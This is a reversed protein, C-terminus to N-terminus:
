DQNSLTLHKSNDSKEELTATIQKPENSSKLMKTNTSEIVIDPINCIILPLYKDVKEVTTICSGILGVFVLFEKVRDKFKQYQESNELNKSLVKGIAENCTKELHCEGRIDLNILANEIKRLEGILDLKIDNPLESAQFKDILDRVKNLLEQSQETSLVKQGKGKQEILGACFAINDLTDEKILLSTKSWSYGLGNFTIAHQIKSLAKLGKSKYPEDLQIIDQQTDNFLAILQIFKDTVDNASKSKSNLITAWVQYAPQDINQKKAAELINYLQKASSVTEAM